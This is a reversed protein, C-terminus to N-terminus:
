VYTYIITLVIAAGIGALEKRSNAAADALPMKELGNHKVIAGVYGLCAGLIAYLSYSLELARAIGIGALFWLGYWLFAKDLENQEDDTLYAGRRRGLGYFGRGANRRRQRNLEENYMMARGHALIRQSEELGHMYREYKEPDLQQPSADPNRKGYGPPQQRKASTSSKSPTTRHMDLMASVEAVAQQRRYMQPDQQPMVSGGNSQLYGGDYGTDSNRRGYGPPQQGRYPDNFVGNQQLFDSDQSNDSQQSNKHFMADVEAYAQMRRRKMEEMPEAAEQAQSFDEELERDFDSGETGTLFSDYRRSATRPQSFLEDSSMGSFRNEYDERKKGAADKKEQQQMREYEAMLDKAGAGSYMDYDFNSSTINRDDM